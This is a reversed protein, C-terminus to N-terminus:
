RFCYLNSKIEAIAIQNPRTACILLVNLMKFKLVITNISFLSVNQISQHLQLIQGVDEFVYKREIRALALLTQLEALRQDSVARKQRNPPSLTSFIKVTNSSSRLNTDLTDLNSVWRWSPYAQTSVALLLGFVVVALFVSHAQKQQHM